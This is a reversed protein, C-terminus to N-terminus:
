SRNLNRMVELDNAILDAVADEMCELKRDRSESRQEHGVPAVLLAELDKGGLVEDGGDGPPWGSAVTSSTDSWSGRRTGDSVHRCSM